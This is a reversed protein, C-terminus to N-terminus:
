MQTRHKHLVVLRWPPLGVGQLGSRHRRLARSGLGGRRRPTRADPESVVTCNGMTGLFFYKGTEGQGLHWCCAIEWGQGPQRRPGEKTFPHQTSQRFNFSESEPRKGQLSRTTLPSRSPAPPDRRPEQKLAEADAHLDAFAAELVDLALPRAPPLGTGSHAEARLSQPNCNGM